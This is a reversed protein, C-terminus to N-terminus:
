ARRQLPKLTLHTLPMSPTSSLVTLFCRLSSLLSPPSVPFCTLFLNCDPDAFSHRFHHGLKIENARGARQQQLARVIAAMERFDATCGLTSSNFTDWYQKQLAQLRLRFFLTQQDSFIVCFDLITDVLSRTVEPSPVLDEIIVRFGVTPSPAAEEPM